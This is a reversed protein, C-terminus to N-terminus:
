RTHGPVAAAHQLNRTYRRYRRPLTQQQHRPRQNTTRDCKRYPCTKRCILLVQSLAREWEGLREFRKQRKSEVLLNLFDEFDYIM